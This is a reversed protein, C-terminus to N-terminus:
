SLAGKFDQYDFSRILTITGDSRRLLISPMAVGNFWNTKVMTYGAADGLRVIEGVELPAALLYDGFVDGALCTRGALITRHVGAAHSTLRPSTGYILHDPMHAEISVDLIAIDVENHVVDLVQAVLETTDTVVAEGPELYTQVGFMDSFERVASCFGDVDYGPTTFSLGGGLSVWELSPFLWAYRDALEGLATEFSGADENECNFHFMVGRLRNAVKRLDDMNGIGLRSHRRAPDALDFKSYSIGPNIRLGIRGPDVLGGFRELQSVSNFIVKDAFGAVERVEAETYGVSYAHVEKADARLDDPSPVGPRSGGFEEHGLRAEFASSSTTGDLHDRVLDFVGWTSFCKLALVVRAGSLERIRAIIRLNHSLRTEDILYYPTSVPPLSSGNL